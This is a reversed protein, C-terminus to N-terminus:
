IGPWTVQKEIFDLPFCEKLALVFRKRIKQLGEVSNSEFRLCIVPQTNSARILGWGDKTDVRVGDITTLEVNKEQAFSNKVKDVIKQGEAQGCAIRLEPSSQRRPIIKLRETLTEGSKVLLEILRLAAYIGDDFGFYRDHFFFHCSLEGAVIANNDKMCQKIFAHGSPSVCPKGGWQIVMEKLSSSCKIDFAVSAQKIYSLIEQSYITLLQDGPVLYGEATVAGMRDADGDFAMGLDAGVRAVEDVLDKVNEPKTPDAEHTAKSGDVETCLQYARKWKMQKILEPMVAGAASHGCDFVANVDIGVLEPFLRKLFAVYEPVIFHETYAGSQADAICKADKFYQLITQIEQGFVSQKRMCIKIGNYEQPNHSATIMLAADVSLWYQSFYLTPSPCVGIFIVNLGSEQLGAILEKKISPSHTRGDMGVAITQISADQQKYYFALARALRRVQDIQLESGVKGRIDYTRFIHDQM